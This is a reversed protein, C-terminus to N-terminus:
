KDVVLISCINQIKFIDEVSSLNIRKVNGFTM